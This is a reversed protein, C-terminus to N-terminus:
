YARAITHYPSPGLMVWRLLCTKGWLFFSCDDELNYGYEACTNKESSVNYVCIVGILKPKWSEPGGEVLPDCPNFEPQLAQQCAGKEVSGNHALYLTALASPPHCFVPPYTPYPHMNHFGYLDLFCFSNVWGSKIYIIRWISSKTIIKNCISLQWWERDAILIQVCLTNM